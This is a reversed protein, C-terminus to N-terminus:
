AAKAIPAQALKRGSAVIMGAAGDLWGDKLELALFRNRQFPGPMILHRAKDAFFGFRE